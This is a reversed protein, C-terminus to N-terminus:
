ATLLVKTTTRQRSALEVLLKKVISPTVDLLEYFESQDLVLLEGASDMVITATRPGADLLSLEGFFDGPGYKAVARGKITCHAQGDMLLVFEHGPNDEKTLTAGPAVHVSTGLHALKTLERRSCGSFLPVKALSDTIATTARGAM